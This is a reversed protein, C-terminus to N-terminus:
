GSVCEDIHELFEVHDDANWGRSCKPCQLMSDEGASPEEGDAVVQGRGAAGRPATLSDINFLFQATLSDIIDEDDGVTDGDCEITNRGYGRARFPLVDYSQEVRHRASYENQLNSLSAMRNSHLRTMATEQFANLQTRILSLEQELQAARGQAAERDHRESKFDDAYVQLQAELAAIRESQNNDSSSPSMMTRQQTMYLQQRLRAAEREADAQREEAAAVKHKYAQVLRDLSEKHQEPNSSHQSLETMQLRRTLDDMQQEHQRQESARNHNAEDLAKELLSCREFLNASGLTPSHSPPSPTSRDSSKSSKWSKPKKELEQALSRCTVMLTTQNSRLSEMETKLKDREGELKSIYIGISSTDQNQSIISADNSYDM